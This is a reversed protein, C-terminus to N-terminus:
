NELCFAVIIFQDGPPEANLETLRNKWSETFRRWDEAFITSPLSGLIPSLPFDEADSASSISSILVRV